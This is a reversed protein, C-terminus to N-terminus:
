ANPKYFGGCGAKFKPAGTVSMIRHAMVRNGQHTRNGARCTPCVIPEDSASIPAVHEIVHGNKCKYEYLPM